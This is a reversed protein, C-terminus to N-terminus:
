MLEDDDEEGDIQETKVKKSPSASEDEGDDKPEEKKSKRKGTSKAPTESNTKKGGGRKGPTKPAAAEDDAAPMTGNQDQADKKMKAFRQRLANGVYDSGGGAQANMLEAVKNWNPAGPNAVHIITLLFQREKADDWAVPM